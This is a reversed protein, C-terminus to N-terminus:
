QSVLVMAIAAVGYPIAALWGTTVIGQQSAAKIISPLWLVFGYVGVSWFFYQASLIVVNSQTLAEFVSGVKPIDVQEQALKKELQEREATPFWKADHPSDEVVARWVFAWIIAPLGEIIFMWRWNFLNILYGSLVSAWMVTIPNGLILFTNARSREGRTFWHSLFVILGPLVASEVVGLLFRDIFLLPINTILGTASAFVGWLLLGWFILRKASRSEAYHGGPIQFLFYGLFFTAGLLAAINSSIGLSQALGGAAGFGYNVRDLYALSYTIFVITVLRLWRNSRDPHTVSATM